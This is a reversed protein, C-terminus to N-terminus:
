HGLSAVIHHGLQLSQLLLGLALLLLTRILILFSFFLLLERSSLSKFFNPSQLFLHCFQRLSKIFFQGLAVLLVPVELLQAVRVYLLSEIRDTSIDLPKTFRDQLHLRSLSVLLLEQIQLSLEHSSQVV